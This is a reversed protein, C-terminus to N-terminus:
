ANWSVTEEQQKPIGVYRKNEARVIRRLIRGLREGGSSGVM